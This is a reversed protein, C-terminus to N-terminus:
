RDVWARQRTCLPKALMEDCRCVVCSSRLSSRLYFYSRNVNVSKWDVIKFSLCHPVQTRAVPPKLAVSRTPPVIVNRLPLRSRSQQKRKRKPRRKSFTRLARLADDPSIINIDLSSPTKHPRAVSQVSASSLLRSYSTRWADGVDVDSDSETESVVSTRAAATMAGAFSPLKPLVVRPTKLKLKRKQVKKPPAVRKGATALNSGGYEGHDPKEQKITPLAAATGTM